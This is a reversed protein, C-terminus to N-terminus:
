PQGLVSGLGGPGTLPLELEIEVRGADLDREAAVRYGQVFGQLRSTRHKEGLLAVLREGPGIEILELVRLVNREADALAARKAMERKITPTPAQAPPMGIGRVKILGKDWDVGDLATVYLLRFDQTRRSGDTVTAPQADRAYGQSHAQVTYNGSPIGEFEYRGRADTDMAAREIGESLLAVRAKGGPVLVRGSIVGSGSAPPLLSVPALRTIQGATVTIGSLVLPFPANPASIAVDYTGAPIEMRFNGTAADATTESFTRGQLSAAVRIGAMPPLISGELSGQQKAPCATLLFLATLLITIGTRM